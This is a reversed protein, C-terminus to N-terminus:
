SRPAQKSYNLFLSTYLYALLNSAKQLISSLTAVDLTEADCYKKSLDSAIASRASKM